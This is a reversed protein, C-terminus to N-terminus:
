KPNIADRAHDAYVAVLEDQTLRIAEPYWPQARVNRRPAGYHAFTWYRATSAFAVGNRTVDARLSASLVGSRRPPRSARIVDRGAEASAPELDALEVGADHM